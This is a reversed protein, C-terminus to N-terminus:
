GAVIRLTAPIYQAKATLGVVGGGFVVTAPVGALPVADNREFIARQFRSVAQCGEDGTLGIGSAYAAEAAPNKVAGVNQGDPAAPGTYYGAAIGIISNPLNGSGLITVDWNDSASHIAASWAESAVNRLKVSAGVSTLAAELNSTGDGGSITTTGVINLRVGRLAAKAAGADYRPILSALSQDYCQYTPQGLNDELIGAGRGMVDNMRGRDIAQAIALRVDQNATPHGQRENFALFTDFQPQSVVKYDSKSGFEKWDDSTFTAVDLAGTALLNAATTNDAVVKVVMKDPLDGEPQDPYSPGWHHGARRRFTYSSGVVQSAAVYPGTGYSHTLLGKPHELGGPCVIGTFGLTLGQLLSSWAKKLSITVTGAVDNAMVEATNNAGVVVTRTPAATKPDVFRALSRAVASPTLPTGDSCTVGKRIKFTARDPKVTWSTALNSIIKGKPTLTVLTEYLSTAATYDQTTAGKAPDLTTLAGGISLTVTKDGTRHSSAGGCASLILLCMVASVCQFLVVRAHKARVLSVRL